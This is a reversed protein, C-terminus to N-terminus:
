RAGTRPAGRMTLPRSAHRARRATEAILEALSAVDRLGLNFGMGAVPHLGQAANGVIICRGASTRQARSLSLPYARRARGEPVPGAALRFARQVEALFQEDSWGM